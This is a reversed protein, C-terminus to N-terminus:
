KSQERALKPMIGFRDARLIRGYQTGREESDWKETREKGVVIVGDGKHLQAAATEGLDFWAEVYHTTPAEDEVWKGDRVTGTNEVIRFKTVSAKGAQQTSPDVALHGWITREAM